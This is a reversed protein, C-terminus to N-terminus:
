AVGPSSRSTPTAQIEDNVTYHGAGTRPPRPSSAARGIPTAVTTAPRPPRHGPRGGDAPQRRRFRPEGDALRYMPLGYLVVQSVVKEDFPSVILLDAIYQQKAFAMAQGVTMTGDLRRAFQRMLDETAGVVTDDGYGYGTNGAVIRGRRQADAGLGRRAAPLPSTRCSLGMHCGMSFVISGDLSGRRRRDRRRADFPDTLLGNADQDAPLARYHDFHANVSVM